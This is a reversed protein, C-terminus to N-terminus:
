PPDLCECDELANIQCSTLTMLNPGHTERNFGHVRPGSVGAWNIVLM